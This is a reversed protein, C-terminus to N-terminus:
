DYGCHCKQERGGAGRGRGEVKGDSARLRLFLLCLSSPHTFTGRLSTCYLLHTSHLSVIFVNLCVCHLAQALSPLLSHSFGLMLGACDEVATLWCGCLALLLRRTSFLLAISHSCIFYSLFCLLLSPAPSCTSPESVPSSLFFLLCSFSLM